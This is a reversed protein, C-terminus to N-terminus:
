WKWWVQVQWGQIDQRALLIRGVASLAAPLAQHELQLSHAPQMDREKLNNTQERLM